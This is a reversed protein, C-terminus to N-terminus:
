SGADDYYSAVPSYGADEYFSAAVPSCGADEYFSAAVHTRGADEYFTTAIDATGTDGKVMPGGTSCQKLFPLLIECTDPLTHRRSSYNWVEPWWDALM